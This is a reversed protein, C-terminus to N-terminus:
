LVIFFSYFTEDVTIFEYDHYTVNSALNVAAVLASINSYNVMWCDHLGFISIQNKYGWLLVARM